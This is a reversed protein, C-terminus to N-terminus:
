CCLYWGMGIRCRHQLSAYLVGVIVSQVKLRGINGGIRITTHTTEDGTSPDVFFVVTCTDNISALSSAISACMRTNLGRSLWQIIAASKILMIIVIREM